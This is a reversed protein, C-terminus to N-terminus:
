MRWTVQTVAAMLTFLLTSGAQVLSGNDINRQIIVGDFTAVVRQYAKDQELV